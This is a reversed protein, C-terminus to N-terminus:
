KLTATTLPAPVADGTAGLPADTFNAVAAYGQGSFRSAAGPDVVIERPSKARADAPKAPIPAM